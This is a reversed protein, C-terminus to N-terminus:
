SIQSGPKCVSDEVVEVIVDASLIGAESMLVLHPKVSDM